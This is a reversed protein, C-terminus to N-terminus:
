KQLILKGAVHHDGASLRYIYIGSPVPRNKNNLSNWTIGHLGGSQKEDVLTRIMRGKIDFVNLKVDGTQLL